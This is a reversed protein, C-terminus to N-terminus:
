ALPEHLFTVDDNYSHDSEAAIAVQYIYATSAAWHLIPGLLQILYYNNISVKALLFKNTFQLISRRSSDKTFSTRRKTYYDTINGENAKSGPGQEKRLVLLHYHTANLASQKNLCSPLGREPVRGRDKWNHVIWSRASDPISQPIM